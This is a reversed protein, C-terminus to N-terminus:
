GGNSNFNENTIEKIIVKDDPVSPVKVTLISTDEYFICDSIENKELVFIDGEGLEKNQLKIKGKLIVNYEAIVKHYHPDHHQGKKFSLVGVEFDKTRLVCPEFDGIFWGRTMDNINYIKM